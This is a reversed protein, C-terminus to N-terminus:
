RHATLVQPNVIAEPPEGRLVAALNAAALRTMETRTEVAASGLHPLLVAHDCEDLGPTLRPEDEFVDLGAGAIRRDNLAALLAAEDVVPGRATNILYATSKMMTLEPEGILHHTRETLPCHLSVFDAKRLATALDVQEAGLADLEPKASRAVYLLPMHWGTSRRAVAAGIRGAGIIALTKGALDAGLLRTPNWGDWQGARVFRDGEVVRRTVAM